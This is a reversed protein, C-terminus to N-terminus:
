YEWMDHEMLFLDNQIREGERIAEIGILYDSILRNDYNNTEAVIFSSFRRQLFIDDFTRHEAENHANFSEYTTFLPRYDNYAIWFPWVRGESTKGDFSMALIRVDMVSRQKDFFWEEWVWLEEMVGRDSEELEMKMPVDIYEPEDPDSYPDIVKMTGEYSLLSDRTPDDKELPEKWWMTIDGADLKFVPFRNDTSENDEIEKGTAKYFTKGKIGIDYVLYLLNVRSRQPQLEGPYTMRSQPYYLPLNQKEKLELIRLIKKSYMADAERIYPLPVVNRKVTTERAFAGDLVQGFSTNALTLMLALLVSFSVLRKM